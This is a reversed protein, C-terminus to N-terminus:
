IWRYLWEPIWHESYNAVCGLIRNKGLTALDNRLREKRTHYRKAVVLAGDTFQVCMRAHSSLRLAPLEILVLRFRQRIHKILEPFQEHEFLNGQLADSRGYPLVYLNDICTPHIVDSAPREDAVFNVLGAADPGAFKGSLEPNVANADVILIPTRSDMANVIALNAALLSKGEGPNASVISWAVNKSAPYMAKGNILITRLKESFSHLQRNERKTEANQGAPEIVDPDLIFDPPFNAPMVTRSVTLPRNVRRVLDALLGAIDFRSRAMDRFMKPLTGLLPARCTKELESVRIIAPDMLEFIFLLALGVVLGGAMGALAFKKRNPRFRSLPTRPPDIVTFRNEQQKLEVARAIRAQELKIRLNDYVTQLSREEEQLRELQRTSDALMELSARVEQERQRFVELRRKLDAVEIEKEQLRAYTRLYQPSKIREEEKDEEEDQDQRADKEERLLRRVTDMEEELRVIDPHSERRIALLQARELKLARYRTEYPSDYGHHYMDSSVIPGDEELRKALLQAEDRTKKLELEIMVLEEERRVQDNRLATYRQIMELNQTEFTQLETQAAMLEERYEDLQQQIFSVAVMAEERGAALMRNVYFQGAFATIQRALDPTGAVCKLTFSNHQLDSIHINRRLEKILAERERAGEVDADLNLEDILQEILLRSHIIKRLTSLGDPDALTVATDFKVLPNLINSRSQMITSTAMYSPPIILSLAISLVPILICPIVFLRKRRFFVELFYYINFDGLFGQDERQEFAKKDPFLTM